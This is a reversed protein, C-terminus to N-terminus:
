SRNLQIPPIGTHLSQGFIRESFGMGFRVTFWEQLLDLKHLNVQELYIGSLPWKLLHFLCFAESM